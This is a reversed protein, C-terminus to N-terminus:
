EKYDIPEGREEIALKCFHCTVQEGNEAVNYDQGNRVRGCYTTNITGGFPGKRYVQRHSVQKSM